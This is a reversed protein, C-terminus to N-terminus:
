NTKEYNFFRIDGKPYHIVYGHGDFIFFGIKGSYLSQPCSYTAVDTGYSYDNIIKYFKCGNKIGDIISNYRNKASDNGLYFMFYFQESNEYYTSWIAARDESLKEGRSLNWAYDTYNFNDSKNHFEYDNEICVKKFIDISNISM